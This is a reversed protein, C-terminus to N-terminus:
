YDNKAFGSGVTSMRFWLGIYPILEGMTLPRSLHKNTEVLVVSSLWQWPFFLKFLDFYTANHINFNNTITPPRSM